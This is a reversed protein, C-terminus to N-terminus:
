RPRVLATRSNPPPYYPWSQPCSPSSPPPPLTSSRSCPLYSPLSTVPILFFHLRPSPLPPAAVACRSPLNPIWAEFCKLASLLQGLRTLDLPLAISSAIAQTVLPVADRLSQFMQSRPPRPTSVVFDPSPIIKRVKEHSPPRCQEGGGRRDRLLGFYKRHVRRRRLARRHNRYDLRALPFPRPARPSPRARIVPRIRSVLLFSVVPLRVAVFLKRLIVKNLRLAISRGTIGLLFATLEESHDV